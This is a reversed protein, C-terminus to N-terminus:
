RVSESNADGCFNSTWPAYNLCPKLVVVLLSFGALFMSKIFATDVTLGPKKAM